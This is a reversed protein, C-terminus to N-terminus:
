VSRRFPEDGKQRSPAAQARRAEFAYVGEHTGAYLVTGTSDRALRGVDASGLNPGLPGFHAGGDTSRLIGLAGIAVTQSDAPDVVIANASLGDFEDLFTEAGDDSRYIANEAAVYM